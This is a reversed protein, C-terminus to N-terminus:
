GALRQLWDRLLATETDRLPVGPGTTLATELAADLALARSALDSGPPAPSDTTVSAIVTDRLRASTTLDRVSPEEGILALTAGTTAAHIVRTAQEVPVRLRGADAARSLLEVLLAHAEDAAPPRQGPRVTGYMLMYFAPHRLGFDVHLDWGRYLDAVPDDPTLALAERKEALYREFGYAALEALLGDKDDFMRYLAPATIGAAAAVARTSVAESGGEELLEAAVQLVQRRAARRGENMSCRYRMKRILAKDTSSNLASCRDVGKTTPAPGRHGAPVEDDAPVGGFVGGDRCFLFM